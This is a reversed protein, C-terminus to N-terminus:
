AWVLSGGLLAFLGSIALVVIMGLDLAPGHQGPATNGTPKPPSTPSATSASSVGAATTTAGTSHTPVVTPAASTSSIVVVSGSASSASGSGTLSPIGTASKPIEQVNSSASDFSAQAIGVENASLDYVVYASRLFTDGLLYPGGSDAAQIGVQCTSAFPAIEKSSSSELPILMETLSVRISTSTGLGFDWYSNSNALNCDALINGNNDTVANLLTIISEVTTSPLICFSTGSDLVVNISSSLVNSGSSTSNGITLSNLPVLFERYINLKPDKVLPIVGLTGSFKNTDIGGFLISGSSAELDDLYLSYAKYNILGQTILDDIFNPYTIAEAENTDYGIGMLGFDVTTETALGIELSKITSGGIGFNDSILDGSSGTGDGYVIKFGGQQIL